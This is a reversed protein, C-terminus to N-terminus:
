GVLYVGIVNEQIFTRLENFIGRRKAYRFMKSQEIHYKEFADEFIKKYESREIIHGSFKKSFLDVLMKELVCSHYLNPNPAETIKRYVLVTNNEGRQRYFTDMTPKYLVNSLQNHLMDFVTDELMNEVEIVIVNGAIQHSLFENWQILEWMQFDVLPYTESILREVKLYFKSHKYSYTLKECNGVERMYTGRGLSVIVKEKRMKQLLWNVYAESYTPKQQLVIDRFRSKVFVEGKKIKSLINDYTM